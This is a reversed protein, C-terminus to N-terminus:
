FFLFWLKKEPVFLVNYIFFLIIWALRLELLVKSLSHMMFDQVEGSYSKWSVQSFKTMEMRNWMRVALNQLLFGLSVKQEAM